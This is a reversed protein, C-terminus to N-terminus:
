SGGYGKLVLPLYVAREEGFLAFESLHCVPVGLWNEGPHRDHSGCGAGQWESGDWYRLELLTEDLGAVDGDAYHITITVPVSFTFGPPLVTGGAYAELEFAHGAFTQDPPDPYDPAAQATYTFDTTQTVAGAPFGGKMKEKSSGRGVPCPASNYDSMMLLLINGAEFRYREWTGEVPFRRRKPHVESFQTNEGIPDLWKRFWAGAGNDYYDADHNGAVHFVDERYHKRLTRYQQVLM